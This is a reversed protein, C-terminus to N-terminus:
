KRRLIDIIKNLFTKHESISEKEYSSILGLDERKGNARTVVAHIEVKKVEQPVIVNGMEIIRIWNSPM